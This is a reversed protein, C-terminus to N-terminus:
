HGGYRFLTTTRQRQTNKAKVKQTHQDRQCLARLQSMVVMDRQERTLQRCEDRAALLDAATFLSSCPNGAHLQCRCGEQLFRAVRREGADVSDDNEVVVAIGKICVNDAAEEVAMDVNSFLSSGTESTDTEIEGDFTAEQFEVENSPGAATVEPGPSGDEEMASDSYYNVMIKLLKLTTQMLNHSIANNHSFSCVMAILAIAASTSLSM